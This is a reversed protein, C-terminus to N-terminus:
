GADRAWEFRIDALGVDNGSGDTRAVQRFARLGYFRTAATNAQYSWLGLHDCESKAAELLATGIGHDHVAPLVYLAVIENDWRALFGVAKGDRRAVTVWGADIMQEAYMIEEAASHVRPLWPLLDNNESLIRGLTGADLTRASTIEIDSM